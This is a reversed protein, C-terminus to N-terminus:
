CRVVASCITEYFFVNCERIEIDNCTNLAVDLIKLLNQASSLIFTITCLNKICIRTADTFFERWVVTGDSGGSWSIGIDNFEEVPLYPPNFFVISTFSSRFCQASNCQVVDVHMDLSNRKVSSWSASVACPSIDTLVGYLRHNTHTLLYISVYGSGSGVEVFVGRHTDCLEELYSEVTKALVYSDEAPEYVHENALIVLDGIIM